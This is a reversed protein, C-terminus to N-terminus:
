RLGRKADRRVSAKAHAWMLTWCKYCLDFHKEYTVQTAAINVEAFQSDRELGCFQSDRELGCRDCTVITRRSM